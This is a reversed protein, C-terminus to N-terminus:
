GIKHEVVEGVLDELLRILVRPLDQKLRGHEGLNCRRQCFFEHASGISTVHEASEVALVIERVSSRRSLLGNVVIMREKAIEEQRLGHARMRWFLSRLRTARGGCDRLFCTEDLCGGGQQPLNSIPWRETIQDTAVSRCQQALPPSVREL